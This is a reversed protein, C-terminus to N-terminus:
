SYNKHSNILNRYIHSCNDTDLKYNLRKETPVELIHLMELTFRKSYNNEEQLIRVNDFDPTHNNTECHAALATKQALSKNRSRLDSKHSSLRTKLKTKTTGVYTKNCPNGDGLCNIIYLM